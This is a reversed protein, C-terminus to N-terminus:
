LQFDETVYYRKLTTDSTHYRNCKQQIKRTKVDNDDFNICVNINLDNWLTIHADECM